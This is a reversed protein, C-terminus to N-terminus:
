NDKMSWYSFETGPALLSAMFVLGGYTYGQGHPILNTDDVWSILPTLSAGKYVALTKSAHEYVIGYTDTNAVTNAVPVVLDTMTTPGTGHVLHLKNNVLGTEFQVGLYSTMNIDSCLAVTSLGAGGNLTNVVVKVSDTTFPTDWLAAANAFFANDIGLGNPLDFISNDWVKLGGVGGTKHWRNGVATGPIYAFTRPQNEIQTAPATPWNVEPRAVYGHEWQYEEGDNWTVFLTYQAGLPIAQSEEASTRFTLLHGAVDADWDALIAKSSDTIVIRASVGAPFNGPFRNDYTIHLAGQTLELTGLTDRHLLTGSV